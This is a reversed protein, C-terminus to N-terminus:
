QIKVVKSGDELISGPRVRYYMIVNKMSGDPLKILVIFKRQPKTTM